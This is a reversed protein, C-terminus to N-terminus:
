LIYDFLVSRSEKERKIVNYKNSFKLVFFKNRLWYPMSEIGNLLENGMASLAQHDVAM